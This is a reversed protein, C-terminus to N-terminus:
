RALVEQSDSQLASPWNSLAGLSFVRRGLEAL